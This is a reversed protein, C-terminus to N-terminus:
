PGHPQMLGWPNGYLDEFVVVSGYPGDRTEDTFKQGRSQM